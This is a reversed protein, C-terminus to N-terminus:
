QTFQSGSLHYINNHSSVGRPTINTITHGSKKPTINTITHVERIALKMHGVHPGDPASLVWTPGMNAGHVNSDPNSGPLSTHITITHKRWSNWSTKRQYLHWESPWKIGTAFIMQWLLPCIAKMISPQSCNVHYVFGRSKININKGMPGQSIHYYNNRIFNMRMEQSIARLHIFAM